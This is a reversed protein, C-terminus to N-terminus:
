EDRGFAADRARRLKRILDNCGQRNLTAYFGDFAVGDGELQKVLTYAHTEPGTITAVQVYDHDRQWTVAVQFEPTEPSHVTERPM